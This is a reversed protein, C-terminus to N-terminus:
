KKNGNKGNPKQPPLLSKTYLNYFKTAIKEWSFREIVSKYAREGMKTCIDDNQLLYNVKEAIMKASKPRVLFGNVEDKVITTVGGKRSVVVPTKHVM